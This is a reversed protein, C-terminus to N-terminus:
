DDRSQRYPGELFTEMLVEDDERGDLVVHARLRGCQVFGLRAYFAQAALNSGRVHIVVKRFGAARAFRATAEFLARGVGRGRWAPLVFTGLEAVHSMSAMGSSTGLNQCGIIEGSRDVAVHVVERPGLSELYKREEEVTWARDIASHIREAVIVRMLASIGPADDDPTASRVDFSVATMNKDHLTECEGSGSYARTQRAVAGKYASWCWGTTCVSAIAATERAAVRIRGGFPM